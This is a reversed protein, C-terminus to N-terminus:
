RGLWHVDWEHSPAVPVVCAQEGGICSASAAWGVPAVPVLAFNAAIGVVLVAAAPIALWRRRTLAVFVLGIVMVGTLYFYRGDQGPDLMVRTQGISLMGAMPIVVALYAAALLMPRPMRWVAVVVALALLPVAATVFPGNPGLLPVAFTRLALVQPMLGPELPGAAAVRNGGLLVVLQVAVTVALWVAHWAWRRDRWARVVYLPLVFLGVPGSLGCILVLLGDGIRGRSTTPPTAVLLAILYVSTVWQVMSLTWVLYDSEPLLVFVLALGIRHLPNPIIASMRGSALFVAVLATVAFVAVAGIAPALVPPVAVEVLTVARQVVSLYGAYPQVLSRLGDTLAQEYFHGDDAWFEATLLTAPRRLFLILFAAIAVVPWRILARAARDGVRDEVGAGRTSPSGSERSVALRDVAVPTM